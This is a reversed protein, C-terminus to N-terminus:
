KIIKVRSQHALTSHGEIVVLDGPNVESQFNNIIQEEDNKPGLDVYVWNVTKGNIVFILPREQRV